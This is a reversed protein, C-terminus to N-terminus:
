PVARSRARCPASCPSRPPAIANVATGGAGMGPSRWVQAAATSQWHPRLVSGGRVRVALHARAACPGSGVSFPPVECRRMQEGPRTSCRTVEPAVSQECGRTMSTVQLVAPLAIDTRAPTAESGRTAAGASRLPGLALCPADENLAGLRRAIAGDPPFGHRQVDSSGHAAVFRSSASRRWAAGSDSVLLYSPLPYTASRGRRRRQSPADTLFAVRILGGRM